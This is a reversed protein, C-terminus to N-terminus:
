IMKMLSNPSFNAAKILIITLHTLILLLCICDFMISEYILGMKSINKTDIFCSRLCTM